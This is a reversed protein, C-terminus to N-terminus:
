GEVFVAVDRRCGTGNGQILGHAIAANFGTIQDAQRNKSATQGPAACQYPPLLLSQVWPHHFSIILAIGHLCWLNCKLRVSNNHFIFMSRGVNFMSYRHREAGCNLEVQKWSDLTLGQIVIETEKWGKSEAWPRSGTSRGNQYEDCIDSQNAEELQYAQKTMKKGMWCEINSTRHEVNM